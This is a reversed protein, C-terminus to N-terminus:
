QQWQRPELPDSRYRTIPYGTFSTEIIPGGDTTTWNLYGIAFDPFGNAKGIAASKRLELRRPMAGRQSLLYM